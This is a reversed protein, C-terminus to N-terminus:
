KKRRKPFLSRQAECAPLRQPLNQEKNWYKKNTIFNVVGHWCVSPRGSIVRPTGNSVTIFECKFAANHGKGRRWQMAESIACLNANKQKSSDPDVVRYKEIGECLNVSSLYDSHALELSRMDEEKITNLIGVEWGALLQLLKAGTSHGCTVADQHCGPIPCELKQIGNPVRMAPKGVSGDPNAVVALIGENTLKNYMAKLTELEDTKYACKTTCTPPLNTRPPTAGFAGGTAIPVGGQVAEECAEVRTVAFLTVDSHSERTTAFELIAGSTTSALEKAVLDPTAKIAFTRHNKNQGWQQMTEAVAAPMLNEIDVDSIGVGEEYDLDSTKLLMCLLVAEEDICGGNEGKAAQFVAWEGMPTTHSVNAVCNFVGGATAHLAIIDCLVAVPGKVGLRREELNKGVMPIICERTDVGQM